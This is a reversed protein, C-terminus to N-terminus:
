VGVKVDTPHSAAYENQHRPHQSSPLAPHHHQSSPLAPHHHQSSPLRHFKMRLKITFKNFCFRVNSSGFELVIALHEMCCAKEHSGKKLKFKKSGYVKLIGKLVQHLTLYIRNTKRVINM